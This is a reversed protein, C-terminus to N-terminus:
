RLAGQMSQPGRNAQPGQFFLLSGCHLFNRAWGDFSYSPNDWLYPSYDGGHFQVLEVEIQQEGKVGQHRLAAHGAGGFREEDALGGHAVREITQAGEKAVREQHAGGLPHQRGGAGLTQVQPHLLRQPQQLLLEALLVLEVRAVRLPAKHEAGRVVHLAHQDRGKDLAEPPQRRADGDLDADQAVGQRLCLQGAALYVQHQSEVLVHLHRPIQALLGPEGLGQGPQHAVGQRQCLLADRQRLQDLHGVHKVRREAGRLRAQVAVEFAQTKAAGDRDVALAIHGGGGDHALAIMQQHQRAHHRLQEGVM